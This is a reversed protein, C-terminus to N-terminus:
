SSETYNSDCKRCIESAHVVGWTLPKWFICFEAADSTAVFGVTGSFEDFDM